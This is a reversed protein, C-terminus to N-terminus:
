ADGTGTTEEILPFDNAEKLQEALSTYRVAQTDNDVMKRVMQEDGIVVVYKSARTVATYLLNRTFLVGPGSFLPLIIVPSESGQSKHITIAYAIELEELTGYEYVVKKKDDFLVTMSRGETDIEAIRGIDGNFVGEGEEVSVGYRNEIKWPMNYNNRIQMVKDGQRFLIGRYELEPKNKAPPNLAQQLLPNLNEVGLYGRKMPTLIQIDEMPSCNAFRPIRHLIADIMTPPVDERRKRRMLFFDTGKRNFVPYQGQNIRHANVIIDSAAAQRYIQHLRVVPVCGSAIIDRLVNGPGVSPLQDADGSLILRTGPVIAKLLHNMLLIDVMSMEDVIVVDAELPNSENRQFRQMGSENELFQIELMRHLTSADRGTTETMRKAARGTPAALLFEEGEDELIDLVTNIITTKGTGPGGTVVLVGRSMAEMVATRQEESLAIAQRTEVKKLLAAREEESLKESVGALERLRRAVNQEAIYFAALYVRDQGNEEKEVIKGDLLLETLANDVLIGSAGTYRYVQDELLSKPLFVHGEGTAEQLAFQVACRIRFPSEQSIGLQAAIQDAKRFGIGHIHEALSYPNSKLVSITKEKYHKYIRLGMAVSIGYQQMFLMAERQRSQEAFQAAIEMAGRESIGKIEALREPENEMVTLTADGFKQVIRHALSAGIGKLVGSALYREIQEQTQPMVREFDTIEFQDGYLNHVKWSGAASLTEGAQLEPMMGVATIKEQEEGDLQVEIIQYGNNENRFIVDTVLGRIHNSRKDM